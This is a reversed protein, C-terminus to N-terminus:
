EILLLQDDGDELNTTKGSAKADIFPLDPEMGDLITQSPPPEGPGAPLQQEGPYLTPIRRLEDHGLLAEDQDDFDAVV